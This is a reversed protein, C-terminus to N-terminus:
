HHATLIGGLVGLPVEKGLWAANGGSFVLGSLSMADTYGNLYDYKEAEDPTYYFGHTAIHLISPSKGSMAIFSEANGKVGSYSKVKYGNGSLTQAIKQIEVKSKSLDKFGEKGYESRYIWSLDTKDYANSEGELIQSSVDYKLGGYLAATKPFSHAVKQKGIERASSLRIFNYHQGLFTGDAMPLSELAIEHM